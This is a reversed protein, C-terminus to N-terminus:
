YPGLETCVTNGARSGPANQTSPQCDPARADPCADYKGDFTWQVVGDAAAYVATGADMMRQSIGIDTGQHGRYGPAGCNHARGSKAIDPYGLSCDKGPTCEIPWLLQACAGGSSILFILCFAIRM